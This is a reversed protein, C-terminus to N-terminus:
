GSSTSPIVLAAKTTAMATITTTATSINVRIRVSTKYASPPWAWIVASTMATATATTLATALKRTTAMWARSPESSDARRSLSDSAM